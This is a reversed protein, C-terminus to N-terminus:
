RLRHIGSTAPECRVGLQKTRKGIETTTEFCSSQSLTGLLPALFLDREEEVGERGIFLSELSTMGMVEILRTGILDTPSAVISQETDEEMQSILNTEALASATTDVANTMARQGAAGAHQLM